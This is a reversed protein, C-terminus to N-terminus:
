KYDRWQPLSQGTKLATERAEFFRIKKNMHVLDDNLQAIKQVLQQQQQTLLVLIGQVDELRDEEFTFFQKLQNISMGTNKFCCITKLRSIHKDEYFRRGKEDRLVHTLLQEEEYYRLTSPQLQFLRSVEKISYITM